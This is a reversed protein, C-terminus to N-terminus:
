NLGFLESATALDSVKMLMEDKNAHAQAEEEEEELIMM